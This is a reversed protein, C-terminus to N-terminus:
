ENKKDSHSKEVPEDTTTTESDVTSQPIPPSPEASEQDEVTTQEIDMDNSEISPKENSNKSEIVNSVPDTESGSFFFFDLLFYNNGLSAFIMIRLTGSDKDSVNASASQIQSQIPKSNIAEEPAKSPLPLRPAIPRLKKAPNLAKCFACKFASYEYEEQSVM